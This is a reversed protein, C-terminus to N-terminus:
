APLEFKQCEAPYSGCAVMDRGKRSKTEQRSGHDPCKWQLAPIGDNDTPDEGGEVIITEPDEPQAAVGAKLAGLLKEGIFASAQAEAQQAAQKAAFEEATTDATLPKDKAAKRAAAKTDAEKEALKAALKPDITVEELVFRGILEDIGAAIVLLSHGQARLNDAVEALRENTLFAGPVDPLGPTPAREGKVPTLKARAAAAEKREMVGSAMKDLMSLDGEAM